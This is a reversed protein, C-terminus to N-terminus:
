SKRISCDLVPQMFAPVYRSLSHLRTTVLLRSCVRIFPSRREAFNSDVLVRELSSELMNTAFTMSANPLNRCIARVQPVTIWNLSKWVGEPDLLRETRRIRNRFVFETATKSILTPFDFHPEYPFLYNACTFRYTGGKTLASFTHHIASAVDPVHEMVNVSFAFDFTDVASLDDISIRCIEPMTASRAALSLVITQLEDFHSFGDSIPELAAVHFGERVLQVALLMTGAGVELISSGFELTDLSSALWRRGFRAEEAYVGFIPLLAPNKERIEQEVDGILQNLSSEVENSVELRVVM